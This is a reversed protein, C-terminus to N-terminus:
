WNAELLVGFLTGSCAGLVIGILAGITVGWRLNRYLRALRTGEGGDGLILATGPEPNLIKTGEPHRIEGCATVQQGRPIIQELVRTSDVLPTELLGRIGKAKAKGLVFRDIAEQVHLDTSHLPVLSVHSPQIQSLDWGYPWIQTSGTGDDLEFPEPSIKHYIESWSYNERNGGQIEVCWLVCFRQTLPSRLTKGGAKGVVKVHGESPLDGIASTPMNRVRAIEKRTQLMALYAGYGIALGGVLGGLLGGIIMNTDMNEEDGSSTRVM